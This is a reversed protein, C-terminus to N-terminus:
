AHLSVAGLRVPQRRDLHRAAAQHAPHRSWCEIFRRGEQVAEAVSAGGALCRMAVRVARAAAADDGPAVRESWTRVMDEVMLEAIM